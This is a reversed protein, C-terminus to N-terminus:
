LIPTHASSRTVARMADSIDGALCSIHQPPIHRMNDYVAHVQQLVRRPLGRAADEDQAIRQIWRLDDGTILRRAEPSVNQWLEYDRNTLHEMINM